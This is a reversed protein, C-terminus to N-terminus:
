PPYEPGPKILEELFQDVFNQSGVSKASFDEAGDAESIVGAM